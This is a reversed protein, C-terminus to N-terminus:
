DERELGGRPQELLSNVEDRIEPINLLQKLFYRRNATQDNERQRRLKDYDIGIYECLERGTMVNEISFRKKAGEVIAAKNEQNFSCFFYQARYAFEQALWATIKKLSALKGDSKKTDFVYGDKVEILMFMRKTNDVVLLDAEISKNPQDPDPRSPKVVVQIPPQDRIDATIEDLESLTTKMESPIASAIMSELEFGSRIVASQVKSFLLAMQANGFIRAFSEGSKGRSEQIKVM